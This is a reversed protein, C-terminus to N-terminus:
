SNIWMAYAWSIIYLTFIVAIYIWNKHSCFKCKRGYQFLEGSSEAWTRALISVTLGSPVNQSVTCNGDLAPSMSSFSIAILCPCKHWWGTSNLGDRLPWLWTGCSTWQHIKEGIVATLGCHFTYNHRLCVSSTVLNYKLCAKQIEM